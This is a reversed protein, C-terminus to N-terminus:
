MLVVLFLNQSIFAWWLQFFCFLVFCVFGIIYSIFNEEYFMINQAGSLCQWLLICYQLHVIILYAHPMALVSVACLASLLYKM